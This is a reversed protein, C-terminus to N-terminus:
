RPRRTTPLWLQPTAPTSKRTLYNFAASVADTQDDNKVNPFLSLEDIFATNWSGALLRVNGANVQAAFPDARLEKSGTDREAEVRFGALLRTLAKVADVGAGGPDQPIRIRCNVGDANATALVIANRRSADERVRVADLVYFLGESCPGALKVGVTYDGQGSYGLDWARIEPLGAPAVQVTALKDVKFQGGSRPTPRQQYLSSFEYEGMMLRDRNLQDADKFWPWLAEGDTRPDEPHLDGEALAPLSLVTWEEAGPQTLLRGAIDDQHWRTFVCVISGGKQLRTYFTSVYWDWRSQRITASNAEDRDKFPDDLILLEAGMGTIGGGAGAARYAGQKDVVEWFEATRVTGGAVTRVNSTNLRTDPFLRKYPESDIIRQVDRSLRLALDASYSAAIIRTDPNRGLVWAPFRRSVLESKGHRPPQFIMLRKIDGREVAELYRCTLEMHWPRQFNDPQDIAGFTYATFDMLGRRAHRRRLLEAAAEQQTM